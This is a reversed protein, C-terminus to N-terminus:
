ENVPVHLLHRNRAMRLLKKLEERNHVREVWGIGGVLRVDKRVEDQWKNRPIGSLRTTELNM